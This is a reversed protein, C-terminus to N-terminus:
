DVHSSNLRTSKRDIAPDLRTPPDTPPGSLRPPILYPDHINDTAWGPVWMDQYGHEIDAGPIGGRGWYKELQSQLGTVSVGGVRLNYEEPTLVM